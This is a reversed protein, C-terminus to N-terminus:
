FPSLLAPWYKHNEITAEAIPFSGNCKNQHKYTMANKWIRKGFWSCPNSRIEVAYFMNRTKWCVWTSCLKQEHTQHRGRRQGRGAACEQNGNQWQARAPAYNMHLQWPIGESLMEVQTASTLASQSGASSIGPVDESWEGAAWVQGCQFLSPM